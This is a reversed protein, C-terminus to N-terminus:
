DNKNATPVLLVTGEKDERAKTLELGQMTWKARAIDGRNSYHKPVFLPVVKWYRLFEYASLLKWPHELPRYGYAEFEHVKSGRTRIHPKRCPPAFTELASTEVTRCRGFAKLSADM